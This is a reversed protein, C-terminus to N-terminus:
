RVLEIIAFMPLFISISIVGVILAMLLVSTTQFVKYIILTKRKIIAEKFSILKDLNQELAGSKEGISIFWKSFYSFLGTDSIAASLSRGNILAANIISIENKIYKNNLRQSYESLLSHIPINSKVALALINSIEFENKLFILNGLFPIFYLREYLFKNLDNIKFYLVIFTVVFIKIILSTWFGRLYDSFEMVIRTLFPLEIKMSIFMETFTPIVGVVLFVITFVSTFGVLAPYFLAKLFKIKIESRKEYHESIIKLMKDLSDNNEGTEILFIYYGNISNKYNKLTDSLKIGKKLNEIIEEFVKKTSNNKNLSENRVIDFAETLPVKRSILFATQSLAKYFQKIEKKKLKKHYIIEKM